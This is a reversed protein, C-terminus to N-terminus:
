METGPVKMGKKGVGKIRRGGGATSTKKSKKGGEEANKKKRFAKKLFMDNELSVSCTWGAGKKTKELGRSFDKVFDKM